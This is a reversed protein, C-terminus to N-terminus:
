LSAIHNKIDNSLTDVRAHPGFVKLLANVEGMLGPFDWRKKSTYGYIRKTTLHGLEKNVRVRAEKLSKSIAPLPAAEITKDSFFNAAVIDDSRPSKYYFFDILNRLHIGFSEVRMNTMFRDGLDFNATDNLMDIEYKLHEDAYKLLEASSLISHPM